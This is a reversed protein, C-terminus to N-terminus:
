KGMNNTNSYNTRLSVLYGGFLIGMVTLTQQRNISAELCFTTVFYVAFAVAWPNMIRLGHIVSKFRGLIILIGLIGCNCLIEMVGNHIFIGYGAGKGFIPSKLFQEYAWVSMENRRDVSRDSAMGADLFNFRYKLAEWFAPVIVLLMILIMYKAFGNGLKSERYIYYVTSLIITIFTMRKLTVIGGFILVALVFYKLKGNMKLDPLLCISSCAVAQMLNTYCIGYIRSSHFDTVDAGSEDIQNFLVIGDYYGYYAIITTFNFIFCVWVFVKAYKQLQEETKLLNNAAFAAAAVTILNFFWHSARAPDYLLGLILSFLMFIIYASWNRLDKSYIVSCSLFLLLYLITSPTVDGLYPVDIERVVLMALAIYLLQISGKYTGCRFLWLVVLAIILWLKIIM